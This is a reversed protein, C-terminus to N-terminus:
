QHTGFYCFNNGVLCFETTGWKIKRRTHHFVEKSFTKSRIWVAKSKSYNIILGSIPAYYDLITFTGYLPKHYFEAYQSM